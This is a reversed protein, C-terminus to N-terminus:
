AESYYPNEYIVAIFQYRFAEWELFDGSFTPLTFKPRLALNRNHALPPAPPLLALTLPAEANFVPADPNLSTNLAPLQNGQDGDQGFISSSRRPLDVPLTGQRSQLADDNKDELFSNRSSTRFFRDADASRRGLESERRTCEHSLNAIIELADMRTSEVVRFVDLALYRDQAVEPHRIILQHNQVFHRWDEDIKSIQLPLLKSNATKPVIRQVRELAAYICRAVLQNEVILQRATPPPFALVASQM